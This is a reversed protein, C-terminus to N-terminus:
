AGALELHHLGMVHIPYGASYGNPWKVWVHTQDFSTVTGVGQQHTWCWDDGCVVKTGAVIFKEMLEESFTSICIIGRMNICIAYHALINM